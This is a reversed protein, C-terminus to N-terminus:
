IHILSLRQNCKLCACATNTWTDTGGRSQPHIHDVTMQSRDKGHAKEGCYVCTYDDRALVAKKSWRVSKNPVKVYKKLVLISPVVHEEHASRLVTAVEDTAPIADGDEILSWADEVGIVEIPRWDANLKLIRATM